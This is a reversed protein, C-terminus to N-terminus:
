IEWRGIIFPMTSRRKDLLPQNFEVNAFCLSQKTDINRKAELKVLHIIMWANLKPELCCLALTFKRFETLMLWYDGESLWCGPSLADDLM